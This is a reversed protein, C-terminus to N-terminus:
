YTTMFLLERINLLPFAERYLASQAKVDLTASFRIEVRALKPLPLTLVAAEFVAAAEVTRDWRSGSTAYASVVYIIDEIVNERHIGSFIPLSAAITNASWVYITLRKAASFRMPELPCFEETGMLLRDEEDHVVDDLEFTLWHVIARRPDLFKRLERTACGVVNVYQLGSLDAPLGPYVLFEPITPSRAVSLHTIKPCHSVSPLTPLKSGFHGIACRSIHLGKLRLNSRLIAAFIDISFEMDSLRLHRLSEWGLVREVLPLLGEARLDVEAGGIHIYRLNQLTMTSLLRFIDISLTAFLSCVHVALHPSQKLFEALQSAHALLDPDGRYSFDVVIRHFLASQAPFLWARAVLSCTKLDRIYSRDIIVESEWDHLENPIFDTIIHYWLEPPLTSLM